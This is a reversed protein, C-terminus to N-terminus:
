LNSFLMLIVFVTFGGYVVYKSMNLLFIAENIQKLAATDNTLLRAQQLEKVHIRGSWHRPIEITKILNKIILHTRFSSYGYIVFIAITIVTYVNIHM